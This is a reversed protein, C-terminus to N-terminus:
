VQKNSEVLGRLGVVEKGLQEVELAPPVPTHGVAAPVNMDSTANPVFVSGLM